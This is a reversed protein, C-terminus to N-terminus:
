DTEKYLNRRESHGTLTWKIGSDKLMEASIEGTYAGNGTLSLNQAGVHIQNRNLTSRVIPIHITSPCVLVEVKNSNFRIKNLVDQSFTKAFNITGNSKWNGGVLFKRM